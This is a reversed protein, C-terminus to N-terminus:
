YELLLSQTLHPAALKGGERREEEVTRHRQRGGRIAQPTGKANPLFNGQSRQGLLAVVLLGSVFALVFFLLSYFTNSPDPGLTRSGRWTVVSASTLLRTEVNRGLGRSRTRCCGLEQGPTPAPFWCRHGKHSRCALRRSSLVNLEQCFRSM